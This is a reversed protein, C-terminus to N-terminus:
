ANQWALPLGSMADMAASTPALTGRTRLAIRLM